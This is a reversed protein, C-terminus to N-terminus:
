LTFNEHCMLKSLKQGKRHSKLIYEVVPVGEASHLMAALLHMKCMVCRFTEM